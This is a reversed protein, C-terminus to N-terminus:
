KAAVAGPATRRGGYNPHRFEVKQAGTKNRFAFIGDDVPGGLKWNFFEVGYSPERPDDLYTASVMVPLYTAADIWIQWEVGDNSFVLHDAKKRERGVTSQGVYVAGTLGSTLASYPEALLLDAYPFSRGEERYAASVVSDVTGPMEKEAYLNKDPAYATIKKGDYYFDYPAFDGRTEAFLMERGKMTVNSEGCLNVWLGGPARVPVMSCAEFSVSGANAVTDSMRKLTDLAKQDIMGKAETPAAHSSAALVVSIFIAAAFRMMVAM